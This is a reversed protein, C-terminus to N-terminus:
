QTQQGRILDAAQKIADKLHDSKEGALEVLSPRGGGKGSILPAVIPVLERMDLDVDQSRALVIHVRPGTELGFLVVFGPSKIINTALFRIDDIQRDSFINQILAGEAKRVMERAEAEAVKERLRRNQKKQNKLDEFLKEVATLTETEGVSLRAATQLLIRNKRIYDWLARGGCVFEFRLNNRIREWKLIKILGIEGTRRPHTGGCASYDFGSVEVVRITGAKQPPRRLPVEAIKDQAVFCTNIEKNQFVIANALEEVRELDAESIKPINIELTSVEAGLHFSRTEGQLLTHFAGSLIHQGAHQQMYDFRTKWDISGSVMDEPVEQDLVHLIEDGVEIVNVVQVGNIEGKDPPQGGSEPYFCTQELILAPRRDHRRRERVKSEFKILYPDDFYLRKTRSQSEKNM